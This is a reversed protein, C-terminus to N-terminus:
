VSYLVPWTYPLGTVLLYVPNLLLVCVFFLCISVYRIVSVLRTLLSLSSSDAVVDLNLRCVLSLTRLDILSVSFFELVVDSLRILCLVESSSIPDDLETSDFLYSLPYVYTYPLSFSFGPFGDSHSRRCFDAITVIIVNQSGYCITSKEKEWNGM